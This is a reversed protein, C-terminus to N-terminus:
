DLVLQSISFSGELAQSNSKANLVFAKIKFLFLSNEIRYIFKLHGQMTGETRLDILAEKYLGASKQNQPRIDTISIGADKALNDIESLASVFIDEGQNLQRGVSSIKAYKTEILEKQSLLRLYKKLKTKYLLTQKHLDGFRSFFPELLNFTISFIVVAVALGLIIKERKTIIKKFM